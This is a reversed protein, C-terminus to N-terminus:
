VNQWLDIVIDSDLFILYSSNLLLYEKVLRVSSFPVTFMENGFSDVRSALYLNSKIRYINFDGFTDVKTILNKYFSM